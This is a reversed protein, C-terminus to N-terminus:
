RPQWTTPEHGLLQTLEWYGFGDWGAIREASMSGGFQAAHATYAELHEAWSITGPPMERRHESKHGRQVPARRGCTCTSCHPEDVELTPPPPETSRIVDQIQAAAGILVVGPPVRADSYVDIATMEAGVYVQYSPAASEAVGDSHPTSETLLPVEGNGACWYGGLYDSGFQQRHPEHPTVGTCRLDEPIPDGAHLVEAAQPKEGWTGKVFSQLRRLPVSRLQADTMSEFDGPEPPRETMVEGVLSAALPGV